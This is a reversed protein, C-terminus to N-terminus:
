KILVKRGNHIYLGPAAPKSDLRRGDLTCWGAGYGNVWLGYGNVWLGYGNVEEIGTEEGFNLVFSKIPQVDTSIPEGATLGNKLEFYARCSNITFSTMNEGSPYYLLDNAGLYLNTKEETFIDIPSYTGVFDVYKTEVPVTANSITVDSFEPNEVYDPATTAWKVIYPKGARIASQNNGFNLTLVGKESDFTASELTKVTAGALPTGSIDALDFPLCLTNWEGDKWLKRNKLTVSHAVESEHQWVINDDFADELLDIDLPQYRAYFKTSASIPVETGAALLVEGDGPTLHDGATADNIDTLVWGLFEYGVPVARVGNEDVPLQLAFKDGKVVDIDTRGLNYDSGNSSMHLLVACLNSGNYGCDTCVDNVIQHKGTEEFGCHRCHFTHTSGDATCAILHNVCPKIHVYKEFKSGTIRNDELLLHASQADKGAEVQMNGLVVYPLQRSIADFQPHNFCQATVDGGSITLSGTRHQSCFAIGIGGGLTNPDYPLAEVQGGTIVVDAGGSGDCFNSRCSGGIATAWQGAHAKVTGGQISIAGASYNIDSAFYGYMSGAGIGASYLGGKATVTGGWITISGGGGGGYNYFCGGGIGAAYEGGIATVTGGYITTNESSGGQGGGIGAADEGGTAQVIGDYIIIRSSNADEGGGIGAAYKGGVATVDGGHIELSGMQEDAVSGIGAESEESCKSTLRGMVNKDNSQAYIKLNCYHGSFVKLGMGITLEAHNCLILHVNYFGWVRDSYNVSGDVIYWSETTGQGLNCNDGGSLYICDNEVHKLTRVVEQNEADWSCEYYGICLRCENNDAPKCVIANLSNNVFFPNVSTGSANYGTTFVGVREMDIGISGAGSTLAGTCEIVKDKGLWVDVGTNDKVIPNGQMKLTGGNWIGGVANAPAKNEIVSGGNLILTGHNAIGGGDYHLTKNDAISGGEITMTGYNFVGGASYGNNGSIKGGTMIFTAGSNNYIGGGRGKDGNEDETRNGSLIGGTIRLTGDNWIGGGNYAYGGTIRGGTGSDQITLSAGAEVWIVQGNRKDGEAGMRTLTHGNLDITVNAADVDLYHDISIDALMRATAGNVHVAGHLLSASNVLITEAEAEQGFAFLLALSSLAITKM